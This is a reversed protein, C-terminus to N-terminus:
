IKESHKQNLKQLYKRSRKIDNTINSEHKRYRYLPVEAYGINYLKKFRKLFDVEEHILMDEDYGGLSKWHDKTFIIGCGIPHHRASKASEVSEDENVELYDCAIADKEKNMIIFNYLTEIYYYNVFDDSDLRIFYPAKSRNIAKNLSYPLGMNKKNKFLKVDPFFNEIKELSDDYSGDDVIIVEYVYRPISQHLISRICRSIHRSRNHNPIVISVQPYKKYNWYM